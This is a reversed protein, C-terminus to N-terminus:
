FDDCINESSNPDCLVVSCNIENEKCSLCDVDGDSCKEIDFAKREILKYYDVPQDSCDGETIPDCEYIFCSEKEPDCSVEFSIEYNKSIFIKYYTLFLVVLVFFLVVMIVIKSNKEM